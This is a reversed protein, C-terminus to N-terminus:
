FSLLVIEIDNKNCVLPSNNNDDLSENLAKTKKKQVNGKLFSRAPCHMGKKNIYNEYNYWKRVRIKVLKSKIKFDRNNKFLNQVFLIFM